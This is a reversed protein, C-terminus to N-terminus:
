SQYTTDKNENMKFYKIFGRIIERQHLQYKSLTKKYKKIEMYKHTKLIKKRNKIELKIGNLYSLISQM